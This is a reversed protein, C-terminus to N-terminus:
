STLCDYIMMKTTQHAAWGKGRIEEGRSGSGKRVRYTVFETWSFKLNIVPLSAHAQDRDATQSRGEPVSVPPSAKPISDLPAKAAPGEVHTRLEAQQQILSHSVREKNPTEPHHSALGQATRREEETYKPIVWLLIVLDIL